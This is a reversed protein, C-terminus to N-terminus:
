LEMGERGLVAERVTAKLRSAVALHPATVALRLQQVEPPTLRRMGEAIGRELVRLKPLRALRAAVERQRALGREVATKGSAREASALTRVSAVDVAASRGLAQSLAQLEGRAVILELGREMAIRAQRDAKVRDVAAEPKLAGLTGRGQGEAGILAARAVEKGERAALAEFARAAGPPDVYLKELAREFATELRRVRGELATQAVEREAQVLARAPREAALAALRAAGDHERRVLGFARSEEATRLAGFTEPRERFAGAAADVGRETVLRRFAAIAVEPERYAPRLAAALAAEAAALRAEAADLQTARARAASLELGVRHHVATTREVADRVRLDHAVRQVAPSMWGTGDIPREPVLGVPLDAARGLRPAAASWVVQDREPMAGSTRTFPEGFREELQRSSLEPGIRSARVWASGDGVVLGGRREELRLGEVALRAELERWSGAERLVDRLPQLREVLPEIGQREALRREGGSAVVLEPPEQEALQYLTGPVERVGLAREEQRLVEQIARYDFPLDWVRGTEPHVRNVLVHVHPHARDRHAVIVAEHESLGLRALVRDTVREMAARDVPDNPDFSLVLHYVPREVRVNQAATARMFVGALEPDATPLNRASSWEVRDREEGTRGAALYTALARFSQGKSSVAIM